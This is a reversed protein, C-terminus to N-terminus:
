RWISRVKRFIRKWASEALLREYAAVAGALDAEIEHHGEEFYVRYLLDAAWKWCETASRDGAAESIQARAAVAKAFPLRAERRDQSDHLEQLERIGGDCWAVAESHAGMGSCARGMSVYAWALARDIHANSGDHKLRTLLAIARACFDKAEKFMKCTLLTESLNNYSGALEGAVEWMQRELLLWERLDKAYEYMEVADPYRGLQDLANGMNLYVKALYNCWELRCEGELLSTLVQHARAQESLAAEADGSHYFIIGENIHAKAVETRTEDSQPTISGMVNVAKKFLADAGPIDGLYAHVSAKEACVRYLRWKLDDRGHNVLRNYRELTEEYLAIDILAQSSPSVAAAEALVAVKAAADGTETEAIADELYGRPDDWQYGWNTWRDPSAHSRAPPPLKAPKNRPYEGGTCQSYITVLQDAVQDMSAWREEPPERFCKRLIEALGAPMQCQMEQPKSLFWELAYSALTGPSELEGTFMELVVRGWSWIDTARNVKGGEAQEPSCYYPSGGRATLGSVLESKDVPEALRIRAATLGFDTVKAQGDRAVLINAPKVDQHVLGLEHVAALGWASQIAIDLRQQLGNLSKAKILDALSSGDIFEAFIALDTAITRFFRCAVLNPHPPLDIWTWLEALFRVKHSANAGLHACKVAYSQGSSVLRCLFVTGMGGSDLKAEIVVGKLLELGPAWEACGETLVSHQTKPEKLFNVIRSERALPPSTGKARYLQLEVKCEPCLAPSDTLLDTVDCLFHRACKPCDYARVNM